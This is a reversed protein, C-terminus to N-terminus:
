GATQLSEVFQDRRSITPYLQNQQSVANYSPPNGSMWAAPPASPQVEQNAIGGPAAM